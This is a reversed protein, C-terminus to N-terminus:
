IEECHVLISGIEDYGTEEDAIGEFVKVYPNRTGGDDDRYTLEVLTKSRKATAFAARIEQPTLDFYEGSVDIEFDYQDKDDLVKLYEVTVSLIDVPLITSTGTNSSDVRIQLNLFQTGAPAAVTPFFFTTIGSGEIRDNAASFTSDDTQSDTLQTLSGGDTALYVKVSRNTAGSLANQVEVKVRLLIKTLESQFADFVPYLHEGGTGTTWGNITTTIAQSNNLKHADVFDAGGSTEFGFFLDGETGFSLAPGNWYLTEITGATQLELETWGIGTWGMILADDSGSAPSTGAFLMNPTAQLCKIHGNRGIPLGDDLDFGMGVAVALAGDKGLTRVLAEGKERATEGM